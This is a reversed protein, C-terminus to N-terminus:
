LRFVLELSAILRKFNEDYSGSTFDEWQLESFCFEYWIPLDSKKYKLPLIQKEKKDALHMERRVWRSKLSIPSIIALLAHCNEIAKGIRELWDDGSRVDDKDIWTNFCRQKIDDDLKYVFRNEERAYSIFLYKGSTDSEYPLDPTIVALSLIQKLLKLLVLLKDDYDGNSFDVSPINGFISSIGPPIHTSRNIVPIIPKDHNMALALERQVWKSTIADPSIVTIMASCEQIAKTIEDIWAEGGSIQVTDVWFTFGLINLDNSLKRVFEADRRAYNFFLKGSM